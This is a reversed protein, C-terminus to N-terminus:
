VKERQLVLTVQGRRVITDSKASLLALVLKKQCKLTVKKVNNSM